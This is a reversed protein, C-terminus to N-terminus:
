PERALAAAIRTRIAFRGLQRRTTTWGAVPLTDGTEVVGASDQLPGAPALMVPGEASSAPLVTAHPALRERQEHGLGADVVFLPEDSARTM